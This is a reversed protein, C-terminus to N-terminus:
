RTPKDLLGAFRLWEEFRKPWGSTPGFGPLPGFGHAGKEYLHLETPVGARRLAAYFMLSNEVPM